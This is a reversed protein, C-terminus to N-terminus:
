NITLNKMGSSKIIATIKEIVLPSKFMPVVSDTFSEAKNWLQNVKKRNIGTILAVERKTLPRSTNSQM